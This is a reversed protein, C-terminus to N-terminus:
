RALFYRLFPTPAVLSSRTTIQFFRKTPRWYNLLMFRVEGTPPADGESVPLEAAICASIPFPALPPSFASVLFLRVQTSSLTVFTKFSQIGFLFVDPSFRASLSVPLFGTALQLMLIWFLLFHPPTEKQQHFFVRQSPSLRRFLPSRRSPRSGAGGLSGRLIPSFIVASKHPAAPASDPSFRRSFAKVTMSAPAFSLITHPFIFLHERCFLM